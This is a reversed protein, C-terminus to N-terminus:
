GVIASSLVRFSNVGDELTMFNSPVEPTQYGKPLFDNM